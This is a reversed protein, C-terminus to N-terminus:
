NLQRNAFDTYFTDIANPEPLYVTRYTIANGKLFDPLKCEADTRNVNVTHQAGSKGTYSVEVRINQTNAGSWTVRATDNVIFSHSKVPRNFLTKAYKEGYVTGIAAVKVSSHGADDYTSMEFTYTREELDPLLIRVTDVGATRQVPIDLSNAGENWQLKCRTIRPDSLLLWSLQIRNRGAFVKVSDVKGTYIIEGGELFDQHFDTGKKCAVIVGGALLLLLCYTITTHLKM